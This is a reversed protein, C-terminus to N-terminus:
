ASAKGHKAARKPSHAWWRAEALAKAERRTKCRRVETREWTTAQGRGSRAGSGTPRYVFVCYDGDLRGGRVRETSYEIIWGDECERYRRTKGLGDPSFFRILSEDDLQGAVREFIRKGIDDGV